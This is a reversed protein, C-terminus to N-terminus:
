RQSDGGMWAWIDGGGEVNPEYGWRSYDWNGSNLTMHMEPVDHVRLVQGLSLPFLTYHVDDSQSDISGELLTTFTFTSVVKGDPTSRLVLHERFQEASIRATLWSLGLLLLSINMRSPSNAYGLRPEGQFNSVTSWTFM